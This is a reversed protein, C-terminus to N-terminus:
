DLNALEEAAERATLPMYGDLESAIVQQGEKSLVLRMYEKVLPDLPQGAVRRVAFTLYRGMPYKGAVIDEPMGRSYAGGEKDALAVLKLDGGEKGIAAFGIGAPDEAVRELIGATTGYAELAPAFQRGVVQYKLMYDGFGTHEPTGYPHIARKGWDGKVGLQSWTTLDGKPQGTSFIRAVEEMTLKDIPNAKNVYIALNTALKGQTNSDHAVRIQLPPAGVIKQYPVLEVGNVERGMPAVLTVGHTLAPMASSTGKMQLTFKTGPHTKIFLANFGKVMFEAHEAGMIRISGDAMSYRAGATAKVPHPQYSPLAPDVPMAAALPAFLVFLSAAVAQRYFRRFPKSLKLQDAFSNTM